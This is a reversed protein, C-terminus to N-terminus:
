GGREKLIEEVRKRGEEGLRKVEELIEGRSCVGKRVLTNVIAEISIINTYSIQEPSLKVAPKKRLM